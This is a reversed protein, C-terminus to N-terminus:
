KEVTTPMIFHNSLLTCFSGSAIFASPMEWVLIRCLPVCNDVTGRKSFLHHSSCFTKTVRLV